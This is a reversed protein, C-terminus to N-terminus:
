AAVVKLEYRQAFHQLPKGVGLQREFRKLAAIRQAAVAEPAPSRLQRCRGPVKWAGQPPGWLWQQRCAPQRMRLNSHERSRVLAVSRRGSSRREQVGIHDDGDVCHPAAAVVRQRRSIAQPAKQVTRDPGTLPGTSGAPSAPVPGAVAPCRSRRRPPRTGAACGACGFRSRRPRDLGPLVPTMLEGSPALPPCRVPGEVPHVTPGGVTCDGELIATGLRFRFLRSTAPWSQAPHPGRCLVTEVGRTQPLPHLGRSMRSCDIFTFCSNDIGQISPRRCAAKSGLPSRRSASEIVGGGSYGTFMEWRRAGRM